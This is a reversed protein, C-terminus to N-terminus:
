RASLAAELIKKAAPVAEASGFGAYEKVVTVSITPNDAPAFGTFWAHTPKGQGTEATGTKGGVLVNAIKAGSAWGREVSEVMMARLTDATTPQMPIRWSTPEARWIVSDLRQVESALYPRMIVGHNAVANTVLAIQLPSVLLQGQGFATSALAADDRLFDPKVSVQSAASPIDIPLEAGFGFRNAYDMLRQHGLRVGIEAFAVNCSAAYAQALTMSIKGPPANYHNACYVPFGHFTESHSPPPGGSLVYEFTDNAQVVGSDLAAAATVTKFISGPVYLGQTARNLLPTSPDDRLRPWDDELSNPDYYPHSVMALVEGTRPDMVVIAGSSDGMAEEAVRQLRSDITLRVDSGQVPRHLLRDEITTVPGVGVKGRLYQDFSREINTNGYKLSHQGVVHVMWPYPYVRQGGNPTMETRALEQGNRDLIRGRQVRLEEEFLRARNLEPDNLLEGARVVQWYGLAGAVILFCLLLVVALREIARSM